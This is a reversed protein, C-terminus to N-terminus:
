LLSQQDSGSAPARGRRRGASQQAAPRTVAPGASAGGGPTWARRAAALWREIDDPVFRLPGNEGGVRLAPIRGTKAAEYVWARSVGLLRAVDNPKLLQPPPM